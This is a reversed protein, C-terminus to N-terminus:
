KSILLFRIEDLLNFFTANEKVLNVLLHNFLYGFSFLITRASMRTICMLRTRWKPMPSSRDKWGLLATRTALYGVMLALGFLVLRVLTIPLCVVIKLWEYVGEVTPTNNRFPDVTTSGPMDFRNAGLFAYPNDDVESIHTGMHDGNSLQHQVGDHEVTLIVHPEPAHEQDDRDSKPPLHDSPLLPAFMSQDSMAPFLDGTAPLQPLLLLSFLPFFLSYLIPPFLSPSLSPSFLSLNIIETAILAKKISFFRCFFERFFRVFPYIENTQTSQECMPAGHITFFLPLYKNLLLDIKLWKIIM